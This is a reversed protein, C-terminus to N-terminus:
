AVERFYPDERAYGQYEYYDLVHENLPHSDHPYVLAEYDEYEESFSGRVYLYRGLYALVICAFVGLALVWWHSFLWHLPGLNLYSSPRNRRVSTHKSGPIAPHARPLSFQQTQEAIPPVVSTISALPAAETAMQPLPATSAPQTASTNAQPVSDMRVPQSSLVFERCGKWISPAETTIEYSQSGIQYAWGVRLHRAGEESIGSNKLVDNKCAATRGNPGLTRATAHLPFLAVIACLILALLAAM